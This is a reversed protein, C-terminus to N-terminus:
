GDLRYGRPTVMYDGMIRTENNGIIVISLMDALQCDFNALTMILRTQGERFANRCLGVPCNGSRWKRALSMATELHDPRGKSRPNYLVCVFDGELACALRKEIVPWPTLLDSLSICCFDHNLPAGLIAAAGCLAPIGPVIHLPVSDLLKEKDMIELVLSAMGYIGSDGSCILATERGDVAMAIAKRCREKEHRMGTLILLKDKLLNEPVLEFYLDYGAICSSRTLAELAMPALLNKDGPGLGVLHLPKSSDM